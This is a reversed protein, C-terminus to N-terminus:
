EHSLLFKWYHTRLLLTQLTLILKRQARRIGSFPHKAIALLIAAALTREVGVNVFIFLAIGAMLIGADSYLLRRFNSM